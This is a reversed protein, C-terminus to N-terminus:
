AAAAHGSMAAAAHGSMAAYEKMEARYKQIKEDCKNIKEALKMVRYQRGEAGMAHLDLLMVTLELEMRM